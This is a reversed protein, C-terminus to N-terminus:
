PTATTTPKPTASPKATPTTTVSTKTTPAPTNTATTAAATPSPNDSVPAAETGLALSIIRLASIRNDKKPVPTGIIHVTDGINLKSFGSKEIGGAKTWGFTKTSKEIDVTYTQGEHTNIQLTFDNKDIASATGSIRIPKAGTIFIIKAKMIELTTDFDGFVVVPDGQELDNITLKTRTGKLNQYVLIDDTLEIKIDKTKTEITVTSVTVTKVTGVMARKQTQRLEAVKTALREKLDEIQKTKASTPTASPTATVALVAASHALLVSGFVFTFLIKKM